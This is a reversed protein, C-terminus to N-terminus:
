RVRPRRRRRRPDGPRSHARPKRAQGFQPQRCGPRSSRAARAGRVSSVRHVRCGRDRSLSVHLSELLARGPTRIRVRSGTAQSSEGMAYLRVRGTGCGADRVCSRRLLRRMTTAVLRAHRDSLSAYVPLQVVQSAAEANPTRPHEGFLPLSSCVDVHLTEVDVGRRLARRVLSDRDPAYVCTSTTSTSRATPCTPSASARCAAVAGRGHAACAHADRGDLCGSARARLASRPRCM